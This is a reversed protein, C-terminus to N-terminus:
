RAPAEQNLRWSVYRCFSVTPAAHDLYL